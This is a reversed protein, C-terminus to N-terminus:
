IAEDDSFSGSSTEKQAKPIKFVKSNWINSDSRLNTLECFAKNKFEIKNNKFADITSAEQHQETNIVLIGESKDSFYQTLQTQQRMLMIKEIM